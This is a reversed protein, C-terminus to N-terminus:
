SKGELEFIRSNSQSVANQVLSQLSHAQEADPSGDNWSNEYLNLNNQADGLVGRIDSDPGKADLVGLVADFHGKINRITERTRAGRPAQRETTPLNRIEDQARKLKEVVNSLNIKRIDFM